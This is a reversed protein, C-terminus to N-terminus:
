FDITVDKFILFDASNMLKDFIDLLSNLTWYIVFWSYASPMFGMASTFSPCSSKTTFLPPSYQPKHGFILFRFTM